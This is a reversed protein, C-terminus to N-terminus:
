VIRMAAQPKATGRLVCGHEGEGAAFVAEAVTEGAAREQLDAAEGHAPERERLQQPGFRLGAVPRVCLDTMM